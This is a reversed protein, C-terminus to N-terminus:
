DKGYSSSGNDKVNIGLLRVLVIAQKPNITCGDLEGGTFIIHNLRNSRMDMGALSTGSFNMGTLNCQVFESDKMRAKDIAGETM